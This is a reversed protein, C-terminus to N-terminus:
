SACVRLHNLAFRSYRPQLGGIHFSELVFILCHTCADVLIQCSVAWMDLYSRASDQCHVFTSEDNELLRGPLKQQRVKDSWTPRVRELVENRTGQTSRINSCLTCQKHFVPGASIQCTSSLSWSLMIRHIYTYIYTHTERCLYHFWEERVSLSSSGPLLDIAADASTERPGSPGSMRRGVGEGPPAAEVTM